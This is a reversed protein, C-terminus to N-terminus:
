QETDANNYGGKQRISDMLKQKATDMSDENAEDNPSESAEEEPSEAEDKSGIPQGDVETVDICRSGDPKTIVKGHGSFDVEQGEQVDPMLDGLEIKNYSSDMAPKKEGVAIMLAEPKKDEPSNMM